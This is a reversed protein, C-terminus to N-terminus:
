CRGLISNANKITADDARKGWRGLTTRKTANEREASCPVLICDVANMQMLDSELTVEVICGM